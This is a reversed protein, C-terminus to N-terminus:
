MRTKNFITDSSKNKMGKAKAPIHPSFPLTIKVGCILIKLDRDQNKTYDNFPKQDGM